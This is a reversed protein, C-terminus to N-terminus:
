ITVFRGGENHDDLQLIRCLTHIAAIIFCMNGKTDKIGIPLASVKAPQTTNEVYVKHTSNVKQHTQGEIEKLQTELDIIECNLTRFLEEYKKREEDVDKPKEYEINISSKKM